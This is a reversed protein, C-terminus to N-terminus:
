EQCPKNELLSEDSVYVNWGIKRYEDLRAILEKTESGSVNFYNCEAVFGKFFEENFSYTVKQIQTNIMKTDDELYLGAFPTFNIDVDIYLRIYNAGINDVYWRIYIRLKNM